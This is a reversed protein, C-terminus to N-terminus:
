LSYIYKKIFELGSDTTSVYNVNPSSYQIFPSEVGAWQNILELVKNHPNEKYDINNIRCLNEYLDLFQEKMSDYESELMDNNLEFDNSMEENFEFYDFNNEVIESNLTHLKDDIYFHYDKEGETLLKKLLTGKPIEIFKSIPKPKGSSYDEVITSFSKLVNFYITDM